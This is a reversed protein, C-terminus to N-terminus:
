STPVRVFTRVIGTAGGLVRFLCVAPQSISKPTYIGQEFGMYQWPEAFGTDSRFALEGAGYWMQMGGIMRLGARAPGSTIDVIVGDMPGDLVLQDVLEVPEGYEVNEDGPFTPAVYAPATAAIRADRWANFQASSFLPRVLIFYPNVAEPDWPAWPEGNNADALWGRAPEQRQLLELLTEGALVDLLNIAPAPM